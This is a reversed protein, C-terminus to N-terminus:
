DASICAPPAELKKMDQEYRRALIDDELTSSLDITEYRYEENQREAFGRKIRHISEEYQLEQLNAQIDHIHDHLFDKKSDYGAWFDPLVAEPLHPDISQRKFEM